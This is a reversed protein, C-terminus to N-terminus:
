LGNSVNTENRFIVRLNCHFNEIAVYIRFLRLRFFVTVSVDFSILIPGAHM